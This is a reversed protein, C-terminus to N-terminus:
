NVRVDFSNSSALQGPHAYNVETFHFSGDTRFLLVTTTRTGYLKTEIFIPSLALEQEKSIGTRPLEYEGALRDDKMISLLDHTLDFSNQDIEGVLRKLREAKPWPTDFDANSVCATHSIPDMNLARSSFFWQESHSGCVVNFHNYDRAIKALSAELNKMSGTHELIRLLLQGRSDLDANFLEPNRYNTVFAFFGDDRVGFWTGGSQDDKGALIHPTDWWKAYSSDRLYFEDRNHAIALPYDPFMDKALLAICM